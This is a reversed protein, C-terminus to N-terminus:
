HQEEPVVPVAEHESPLLFATASRAIVSASSAPLLPLRKNMMLHLSNTPHPENCHLTTDCPFRVWGEPQLHRASSYGEDLPFVVVVVVGLRKVVKVFVKHRTSPLCARQEDPFNSQAFWEGRRM